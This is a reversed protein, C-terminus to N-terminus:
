ERYSKGLGRHMEMRLAALKYRVQEISHALVWMRVM